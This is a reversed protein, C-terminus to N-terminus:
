FRDIIKLKRVQFYPSQVFTQTPLQLPPTSFCSCLLIIISHSSKERFFLQTTESTHTKPCGGPLSNGEASSNEITLRTLTHDTPVCFLTFNFGQFAIKYESGLFNNYCNMYVYPTYQSVTPFFDCKLPKQLFLYPSKKFFINKQCHNKKM